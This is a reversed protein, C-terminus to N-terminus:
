AGLQVGQCLVEVVAKRRVVSDKEFIDITKFRTEEGGSM